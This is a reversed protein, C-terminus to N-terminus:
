EAASGAARKRLFFVAGGGVALLGVAIGAMMGLNSSSGTEALDPGSGGTTAPAPENEAPTEPEPEAIPEEGATDCNLVDKFVWPDKGPLNEITIEYAQGNEVPVTVQEQSGPAIEYDEGSLKFTFPEDGSNSVTLVVGGEACVEEATVAPNPGSDNWHVTAGASVSSESSGALIMTQTEIGVGTFVRGVPVPSTATASLSASGDEAGEPVSFFLETGDTVPTSETITEGNADVVTVGAAAAAPDTSVVVSDASTHVTVPESLQGPKATVERPSLELSARPEDVAEANEGLWDALKAANENKPTAEVGDSLEWIAAQTGAAAQEATLENAGAAEALSNLDDVVPYSNQLIWHIKAAEEQLNHLRSSDWDTEQYKASPKTPTGFDICYTKLTGGDDANLYFLGGSYERTRGDKTVDIKDSVRLGALTATAGGNGPTQDALAPGATALVGAAALGTAVATAALRAAVRKRAFMM